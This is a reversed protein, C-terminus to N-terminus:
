VVAIRSYIAKISELMYWRLTLPNYVVKYWRGQWNIEGTSNGEEDYELMCVTKTQARQGQTKMNFQYGVVDGDVVVSQNALKSVQKTEIFAPEDEPFRERISAAHAQARRVLLHHGYVEQSDKVIYLKIM